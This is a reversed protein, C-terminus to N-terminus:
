FKDSPFNIGMIGLSNWTVERNLFSVISEIEFKKLEKLKSRWRDEQAWM